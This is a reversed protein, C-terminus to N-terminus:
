FHDPKNPFWPRGLLGCHYRYHVIQYVRQVCLVFERALMELTEGAAHRTPIKRQSTKPFPTKLSRPVRIYCSYLSRLLRLNLPTEARPQRYFTARNLGLLECPRRVSLEPQGVDIMARKDEASLPRKKKLWELEM